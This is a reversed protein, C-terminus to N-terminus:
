SVQMNPGYVARWRRWWDSTLSISEKGVLSDALLLEVSKTDDKALGVAVVSASQKQWGIRVTNRHGAHETAPCSPPGLM